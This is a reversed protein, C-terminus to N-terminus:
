HRAPHLVAVLADAAAKRTQSSLVHSHGGKEQLENLQELIQELKRFAMATVIVWWFSHTALWVFWGFAVSPLLKAVMELIWWVVSNTPESFM